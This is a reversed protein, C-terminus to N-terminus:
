PRPKRAPGDDDADAGRDALLVALVIMGAGVAAAAVVLITQLGEPSQTGALRPQHAGWVAAIFLLSGGIVLAAALAPPIRPPTM